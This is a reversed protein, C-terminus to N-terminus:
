AAFLLLFLLLVVVIRRCLVGAGVALFELTPLGMVNAQVFAHPVFFVLFVMEFGDAVFKLHSELWAVLKRRFQTPVRVFLIPLAFSPVRSRLINPPLIIRISPDLDFPLVAILVFYSGWNQGSHIVRKGYEWNRVVGGCFLCCWNQHGAGDRAFCVVFGDHEVGLLVALL